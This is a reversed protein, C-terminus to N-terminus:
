VCLRMTRPLAGTAIAGTTAASSSQDVSSAALYLKELAIKSSNTGLQLQGLGKCTSMSAGGEVSSSSCSRNPTSRRWAAPTVRGM